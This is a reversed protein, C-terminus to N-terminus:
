KVASLLMGTADKLVIVQQHKETGRQVVLLYKGDKLKRLNLRKHYGNHKKVIDQFYVVSGDINEITIRTTQQQLNSVNVDLSKEAVATVTVKVEKTPEFENAIAPITLALSFALLLSLFKM